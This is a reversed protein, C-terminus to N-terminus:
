YYRLGRSRSYRKDRNFCEVMFRAYDRQLSSRLPDPTNRYTEGRSFNEMADTYVQHEDPDYNMVVQKDRESVTELNM